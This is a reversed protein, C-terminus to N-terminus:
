RASNALQPTGVHEVFWQYTTQIGTGLSISHRWGLSHLRKVDLLKRPTGDPKSSDYVIAGKYGVCDAILQALEAISIDEGTGVNVIEPSEYHQMLFVAASALDYAHLFERRPRGTGWLTVQPQESAQAEHFKRILAPLVHSTQLDFNDNPGYLNTPMLSIARFGHQAFYAQCLKIGAIKAIAYADNTPELAGTM